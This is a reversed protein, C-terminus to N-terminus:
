SCEHYLFDRLLADAYMAAGSEGMHVTDVITDVTQTNRPNVREPVYTYGYDIDFSSACDVFRVFTNLRVGNPLSAEEVMKEYGAYHEAWVKRQLMPSFDSYNGENLPYFQHNMLLIQVNSSGGAIEDCAAKIRGLVKLMRNRVLPLANVDWKIDVIDNVGCALYIYDPHKGQGCISQFYKAIDVRENWGDKDIANPKLSSADYFPNASTDGVAGTGSMLLSLRNGIEYKQNAAGLNGVLEINGKGLNFTPPYVVVGDVVESDAETNLMRLWEKGILNQNFHILSDGIFLVQMKNSPSPLRNLVTPMPKKHVTTTKSDILQRKLNYVNVTINGAALVRSFHGKNLVTTAALEVNFNKTPRYGSFLSSPYLRFDLGDITYQNKALMIKGLDSVGLRNVLDTGTKDNLIYNDSNYYFNIKDKTLDVDWADYKLSVLLYKATAPVKIKRINSPYSSLRALGSDVISMFVYSSLDADLEVVGSPIPIKATIEKGTISVLNGRSDVKGRILGLGELPISDELSVATSYAPLETFKFETKTVTPKALPEIDLKRLYNNGTYVLNTKNFVVGNTAFDQSTAYEPFVVTFRIAQSSSPLVINNLSDTLGSLLLNNEADLIVFYTATRVVIREIATVNDPIVIHATRHNQSAMLKGNSSVYGKILSPDSAGTYISNLVVTKRTAADDSVVFDRGKLYDVVSSGTIASSDDNGDLVRSVKNIPSYASKVWAGATKIYLGNNDSVADDTVFAYDGDVLASATMLTKTAFPKAPLGGREFIEKIAKALTPYTRNLRTTVTTTDDGNVALGLAEVDESANELQELSIPTKAM